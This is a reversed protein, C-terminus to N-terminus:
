LSLSNTNSSSSLNDKSVSGLIKAAFLIFINGTSILLAGNISRILTGPMPTFDALFIIEILFFYLNVFFSSNFLNPIATFPASFYM